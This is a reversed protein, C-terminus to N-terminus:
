KTFCRVNKTGCASRKYCLFVSIQFHETKSQSNRASQKPHSNGKAPVCDLVSCGDIAGSAQMFRPPLSLSCSPRMPWHGQYEPGPLILASWHGQLLSGLSLPWAGKVSAQWCMARIEGSQCNEQPSAKKQTAWVRQYFQWLCCWLENVPMMRKSWSCCWCWHEIALPIAPWWMVSTYLLDIPSNRGNIYLTDLNWSIGMDTQRLFPHLNIRTVEPLWCWFRVRNTNVKSNTYTKM